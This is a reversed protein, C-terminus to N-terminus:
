RPPPSCPRKTITTATPCAGAAPTTCRARGGAQLAAIQRGLAPVVEGTFIQAAQGEPDGLRKAKARDAVSRVLVSSPASASRAAEESQRHDRRSHFGAADRGPRRRPQFLDDASRARRRLGEVARSLHRCGRPKDIKHQNALFDPVTYYAGTLQSLVYPAMRGGTSGYQFRADADQALELRFRAIDLSLAGANSLQDRNFLKISNLNQISNDREAEAGALSYDDLKSRLKALPGKDLGLATAREPHLQSTRRRVPAEPHHDAPRRGNGVADPGGCAIRRLGPRGTGRRRRAAQSSRAYPSEGRTLTRAVRRAALIPWPLPPFLRAGPASDCAFDAGLRAAERARTEPSARPGTTSGASWCRWRCPGPCCGRTM